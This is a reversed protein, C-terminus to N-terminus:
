RVAPVKKSFQFYSICSLSFVICKSSFGSSGPRQCDREAVPNSRINVLPDAPNHGRELGLDPGNYHVPVKSVLDMSTPRDAAAPVQCGPIFNKLFPSNSQPRINVKHAM